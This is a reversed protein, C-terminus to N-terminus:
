DEDCIVDECCEPSSSSIESSANSRIRDNEMCIIDHGRSTYCVSSTSNKGDSGDDSISDKKQFEVVNSLLKIYRIAFRLIESKSLKKDPPHTPLLRRLDSFATNVNQQRWRERTNTYVRRNPMRRHTGVDASLERRRLKNRLDLPIDTHIDGSPSLLTRPTPFMPKPIRDLCIFSSKSVENELFVNDDSEERTEFSEVDEDTLSFSDVSMESQFRTKKFGMDRCLGSVEHILAQSM